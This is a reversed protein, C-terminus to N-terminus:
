SANFEALSILMKIISVIGFGILTVGVISTFLIWFKRFKRSKRDIKKEVYNISGIPNLLLILGLIIWLFSFFMNLTVLGDM